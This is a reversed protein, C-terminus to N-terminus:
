GCPKQQLGMRQQGRFNRSVGLHLRPIEQRSGDVASGPYRISRGGNGVAPSLCGDYIRLLLRAPEDQAPRAEAAYIFGGTGGFGLATM